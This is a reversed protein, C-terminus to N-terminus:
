VIQFVSNEQYYRWEEEEHEPLDVVYGMSILNSYDGLHTSGTDAIVSTYTNDHDRCFGILDSYSATKESRNYFDRIIELVDSYHYCFEIELIRHKGGESSTLSLTHITYPGLSALLSATLLSKEQCNGAGINWCEVPPRLDRRGNSGSREEYEITDNIHYHIAAAAEIQSHSRVEPYLNLIDVALSNLDRNIQSSWTTSTTAASSM